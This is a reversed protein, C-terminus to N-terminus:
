FVVKKTVIREGAKVKILYIGSLGNSSIEFPYVGEVKVPALSKVLRGDLGYVSISVTQAQETEVSVGVTGSPNKYANVILGALQIEEVTTANINSAEVRDANMIEGSRNDILLAIVDINNINQITEPLDFTYTYHVPTGVSLTSPISEEFGNFTGFLARAVDQYVMQSAPVPNPLSEYGGMPGNGGGAYANAQAYGSETGKVQNETVVLSLRFNASNKYNVAFDSQINATIRTKTEDTFQASLSVKGPTTETLLRNYEQEFVNPDAITTRNILGSPYGNIKSAVAQDYERVVMPDSNHVAIGIFSSPYKGKMYYMYFAGRPCWQCWTGTAEEGVIKRPFQESVRAIVGSQKETEYEDTSIWIDYSAAEGPTLSIQSIDFTYTEGGNINVNEIKQSATEGNVTYHATFSTLKNLKNKLTGKITARNSQVYAPVDPTFSFSSRGVTINNIGLVHKDNSDNVWAIRITKGAYPALSVSHYTIYNNEEDVSYIPAETFNGVANGTTSIYVKYGDKKSYDFSVADWALLADTAETPISVPPSILWDNSRGPTPFYFSTSIVLKNQSDYVWAQYPPTSGWNSYNPKLGDLDYLTFPELDSPSKFETEFYVQAKSHAFLCLFFSLLLLTRKM